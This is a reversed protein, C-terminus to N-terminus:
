MCTRFFSTWSFRKSTGLLKFVYKEPEPRKIQQIAEIKYLPPKIKKKFTVHGPFKVAVVFFYTGDPDAQNEFKGLVQEFIVVKIFVKRKKVAQIIKDVIYTVSGKKPHAARPFIHLNPYFLWMVGAIWLSKTQKLTRKWCCLTCIEPNITSLCSAKICHM